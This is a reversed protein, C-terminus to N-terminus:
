YEDSEVDNTFAWLISRLCEVAWQYWRIIAWRSLFQWNDPIEVNLISVQATHVSSLKSIRLAMSSFDVITLSFVIFFHSYWLNNNQVSARPSADWFRTQQQRWLTVCAPVAYNRIYIWSTPAPAVKTPRAGTRGPRRSLSILWGVFVVPIKALTNQMRQGFKTARAQVASLHNDRPRARSQCVSQCVYVWM